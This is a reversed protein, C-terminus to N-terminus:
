GLNARTRGMATAQLWRHPATHPPAHARRLTGTPSRLQQSSGLWWNLFVVCIIRKAVPFNHANEIRDSAQPWGVFISVTIIKHSGSNIQATPCHSCSICYLWCTHGNSVTKLFLDSKNDLSAELPTQTNAKSIKSHIQTILETFM